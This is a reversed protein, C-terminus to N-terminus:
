AGTRPHSRTKQVVRHKSSVRTRQPGPENVNAAIVAHVGGAINVGDGEHDLKARLVKRFKM